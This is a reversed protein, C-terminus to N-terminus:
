HKSIDNRIYFSIIHAINNHVDNWVYLTVSFKYVELPKDIKIWSMIESESVFDYLAKLFFVIYLIHSVFPGLPGLASM